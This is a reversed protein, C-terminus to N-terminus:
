RPLRFVSTDQYFDPSDNAPDWGPWGQIPMPVLVRPRFIDAAAMDRVQLAAGRDLGTRPSTCVLLKATMSKYPRHLKELLGHGIIVPAFRPHLAARYQGFLRAWQRAQLAEVWATAPAPWIAGGEDLLTIADRRYGRGRHASSLPSGGSSAMDQGQECHLENFAGKLRPFRLWVLANHFDHRAGAGATRCAIEGAELIRSEYDLASADGGAVFRLKVGRANVLGRWVALRNLADLWDACQWASPEQPDAALLGPTDGGREAAPVSSQAMLRLRRLIPWYPAFGPHQWSRSNILAHWALTM